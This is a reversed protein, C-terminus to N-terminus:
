EPEISFSQGLGLASQGERKEYGMRLIYSFEYLFVYRSYGGTPVAPHFYDTTTILIDSKTGLQEGEM